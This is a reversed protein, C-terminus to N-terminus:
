LGGGRLGWEQGYWWKEVGKFKMEEGRGVGLVGSRGM